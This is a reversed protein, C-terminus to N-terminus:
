SHFLEKVTKSIIDRIERPVENRFIISIPTAPLPNKLSLEKLQHSKLEEKVINEGMFSIGLGDKVMLKIWELNKVETMNYKRLGHKKLFQDFLITNNAVKAYVIFKEEKLEMINLPGRILLPHNPSAVLVNKVMVLPEITNFDNEEEADLYILGIDTDKKNIDEVIQLTSDVKIIFDINPFYESISKLVSPLIHREMHNPCSLRIKDFGDKNKQAVENGMLIWRFGEKYYTYIKEGELTLIARKGGNRVFLVTDLEKELKQIRFSITPQTTYLSDAAMTFSGEEVVKLFTEICKLEM